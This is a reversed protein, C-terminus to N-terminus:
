YTLPRPIRARWLLYMPINTKPGLARLQDLGLGPLPVPRCSLSCGSISSPTPQDFQYDAATLGDM